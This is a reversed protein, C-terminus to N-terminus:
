LGPPRDHLGTDSLRRAAAEAKIDAIQKALEKMRRENEEKKVYGESLLLRLEGHQEQQTLRHSSNDEAIQIVQKMLDDQLRTVDKEVKELDKEIPAIKLAMIYKIVGFTQVIVTLGLGIIALWVRTESTGGLASTQALITALM